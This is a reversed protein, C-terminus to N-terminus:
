LSAEGRLYRDPDGRVAAQMTEAVSAGARQTTVLTEKEKLAALGDGRGPPDLIVEDKAIVMDCESNITTSLDIQRGSGKAAITGDFV